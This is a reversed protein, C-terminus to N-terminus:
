QCIPLVRIGFPLVYPGVVIITLTLSLATDRFLYLDFILCASSLVSVLLFKLCAFLFSFFLVVLM